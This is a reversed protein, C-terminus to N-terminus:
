APQELHEIVKKFEKTYATPNGDGDDGWIWCPNGNMEWVADVTIEGNIITEKGTKPDFCVRTGEPITITYINRSTGNIIRTNM